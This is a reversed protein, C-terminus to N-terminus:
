RADRIELLASRLRYPIVTTVEVHELLFPALSGDGFHWVVCHERDSVFLPLTFTICM